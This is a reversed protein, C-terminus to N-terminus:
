PGFVRRCLPCTTRGEHMKKHHDLSRPHKFVKGCEDCGFRKLSPHLRRWLGQAFVQLSEQIQGDNSTGETPTNSKDTNEEGSYSNEFTEETKIQDTDMWGGYEESGDESDGGGNSNIETQCTEKENSVKDSSSKPKKSLTSVTKVSNKPSSQKKIPKLDNKTTEDELTESVCPGSGILGKVELLEATSLFSSLDEQDVNVEGKYMFCVLAKLDEYKVNQFIIVPHHCPNEKFIERFYGSCASLLIKHAKLKRGECCLTVDVLNEEDRLTDFVQTIHQVYNNWRLSFQHSSAM